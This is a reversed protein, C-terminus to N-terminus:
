NNDYATNESSFYLKIGLTDGGIRDRLSRGSVVTDLDDTGNFFVLRNGEVDGRTCISLKVSAGDAVTAPETLIGVPFQSGDVADSELPLLKQDASIRGMVTGALLAVEGGTGNTYTVTEFNNNGLFIISHDYNTTMQNETQNVTNATSNPM